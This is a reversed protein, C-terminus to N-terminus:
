VCFYFSIISEFSIMIMRRIVEIILLLNHEDSTFDFSPELLITDLFERARYVGFLEPRPTLKTLIFIFCHITVSYSLNFRMSKPPRKLEVPYHDRFHKRTMTYLLQVQFALMHNVRAQDVGM